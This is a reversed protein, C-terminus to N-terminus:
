GYLFFMAIFTILLMMILSCFREQDTTGMVRWNIPFMSLIAALFGFIAPEVGVAVRNKDCVSAFLSGLTISSLFIAIMFCWGKQTRNSQIAVNRELIFGIMM